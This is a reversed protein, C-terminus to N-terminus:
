CVDGLPSSNGVSPSYQPRNLNNVVVTLAAIWLQQNTSLVVIFDSELTGLEKIEAWSWNQFDLAKARFDEEQIRVGLV